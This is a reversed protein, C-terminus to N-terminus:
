HAMADAASAQFMARIQELYLAAGQGEPSATRRNAAVSADIAAVIESTDLVGKALLIWLLQMLLADNALTIAKMELYSEDLTPSSESQRDPTNEAQGTM